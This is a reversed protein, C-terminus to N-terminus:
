WELLMVRGLSVDTTNTFNVAFYVQVENKAPMMVWYKEDSRYAIEIPEIIKAELASM